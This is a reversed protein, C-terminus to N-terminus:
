SEKFSIRINFIMQSLSLKKPFRPFPSAQKVSKSAIGILEKDNTSAAPDIELKVLSGDSQLVFFVNVDGEKFNYTYNKRLKEKIKERIIRSYAAYDKKDISEYLVQYSRIDNETVTYKQQDVPAAEKVFQASAEYAAGFSLCFIVCFIISIKHNYSM